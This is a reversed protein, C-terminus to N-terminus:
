IIIIKLHTRVTRRIIIILRTSKVLKSSLEDNSFNNKLFPMWTLLNANLHLLETLLITLNTMCQISVKLFPKKLLQCRIPALTIDAIKIKIIIKAKTIIILKIVSTTIQITFLHWFIMRTVAKSLQLMLATKDLQRILPDKVR